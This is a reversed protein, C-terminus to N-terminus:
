LWRFSRSVVNWPDVNDAGTPSSLVLDARKGSKFFIFRLVDLRYRKGTVPNPEGNQRYTIEIAQGGPLKVAKVGQLQFAPAMAALKKVESTKVEALTPASASATWMLEIMNLKDTFTAKSDAVARSWGEPIKIELAANPQRYAVFVQSDPIDGPPNKEPAIPTQPTAAASSTANGGAQPTTATSVASPPTTAPAQSSNAPASPGSCGSVTLGALAALAIMWVTRKM